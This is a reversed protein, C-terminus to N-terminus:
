IVLPDAVFALLLVFHDRAIFRSAEAALTLLLILHNLVHSCCHRIILVGLLLLDVHIMEILWFSPFPIRLVPELGLPEALSSAYVVAPLEVLWLLSSVWCLVRLSCVVEITLVSIGRSGASRSLVWCSWYTVAGHSWLITVYALWGRASLSCRPLKWRSACCHPLAPKATVAQLHGELSVVVFAQMTFSVPFSLLAQLSSFLLLVKSAAHLVSLWYVCCLWWCVAVAAVLGCGIWTCGVWGSNLSLLWDRSPLSPNSCPRILWTMLYCPLIIVVGSTVIALWLWLWCSIITWILSLVVVLEFPATVVILAHFALM